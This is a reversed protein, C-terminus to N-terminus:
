PSVAPYEVTCLVARLMFYNGSGFHRYCSQSPPSMGLNVQGSSIVDSSKDHLKYNAIYGILLLGWGTEMEQDRQSLFVPYKCLHRHDWSAQSLVADM